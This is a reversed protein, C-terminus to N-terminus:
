EGCRQGTPGTARDCPVVSEPCPGVNEESERASEHNTPGKLVDANGQFIHVQKQERDPSCGCEWSSHPKPDSAVIPRFRSGSELAILGHHECGAGMM